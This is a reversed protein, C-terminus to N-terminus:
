LGTQACLWWMTLNLMQSADVLAKRVEDSVMRRPDIYGLTFARVVPATWPKLWFEAQDFYKELAPRDVEGVVFTCYVDVAVMGAALPVVAALAPWVELLGSVTLRAHPFVLRCALVQVAMLLFALLTPLVTGWTLLVTHHQRVLTLLKPWRQPMARVLRIVAEYQRIRLYASLLFTLALYFDFFHLLNLNWFKEM